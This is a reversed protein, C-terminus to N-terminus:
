GDGALTVISFGVEYLLTKCVSPRRFSTAAPQRPNCLDIGMGDFALDSRNCHVAALKNICANGGPVTAVDAHYASQNQSWKTVM